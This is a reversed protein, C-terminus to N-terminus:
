RELRRRLDRRDFRLEPRGACCLAAATRELEARAAGVEIGGTRRAGPALARDQGGHAGEGRRPRRRRVPNVDVVERFRIAWAGERYRGTLAPSQRLRHRRKELRRPLLNRASELALIEGASSLLGPGLQTRPAGLQDCIQTGKRLFALERQIHRGGANGADRQLVALRHRWLQELLQWRLCPRFKLLTVLLDLGLDATAHALHPLDILLSVVEERRDIPLHREIGGSRQDRLQALFVAVM